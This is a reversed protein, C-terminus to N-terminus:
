GREAEKITAAWGSMMFPHIKGGIEWRDITSKSVLMRRALALRTIGLRKRRLRLEEYREIKMDLLYYALNALNDVPKQGLDNKKCLTVKKGCKVNETRPM